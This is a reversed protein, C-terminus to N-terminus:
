RRIGRRRCVAAVAGRGSPVAVRLPRGAAVLQQQEVVRIGYPMVREWSDPSRGNWAAREGIIAGLRVDATAIEPRGGGAMLVNVCRVFSLDSAARRGGVLRVPLDALARCREEADREGASVVTGAGPFESRLADSSARDGTLVVTVGVAAAERAVTRAAAIGLRQVPVTLECGASLGAGHVRRLLAVLEVAVDDRHGPVHELAVRRGAALQEGAVRM